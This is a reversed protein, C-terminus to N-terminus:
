TTILDLIKFFFCVLCGFCNFFTFLFGDPTYFDLYTQVSFRIQGVECTNSNSVKRSIHSYNITLSSSPLNKKIENTVGDVEEVVKSSTKKAYDFKISVNIKFQLSFLLKWPIHM